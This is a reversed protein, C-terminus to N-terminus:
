FRTCVVLLSYALCILQYAGICPSELAAADGGRDEDVCCANFQVMHFQQYAAM